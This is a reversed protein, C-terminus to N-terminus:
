YRFGQRTILKNSLIRLIFLNYFFICLTQELKM